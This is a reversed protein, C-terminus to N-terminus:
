FRSVERHLMLAKLDGQQRGQLTVLYELVFYDVSDVAIGPLDTRHSLKILVLAKNVEKTLCM